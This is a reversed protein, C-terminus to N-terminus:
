RTPTQKTPQEQERSWPDDWFPQSVALVVMGVLAWIGELNSFHGTVNWGAGSKIVLNIFGYGLIAWIIRLAIAKASAEALLSEAVQQDSEGGKSKQVLGSIDQTTIGLAQMVKAGNEKSLTSDGGTAQKVVNAITQIETSFKSSVMAAAKKIMDMIGENLQILNESEAIINSYKRMIESESLLQKKM